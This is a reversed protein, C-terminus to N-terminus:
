NRKLEMVEYPCNFGCKLVTRFLESHKKRLFLLIVSNKIGTLVISSFTLNLELKLM